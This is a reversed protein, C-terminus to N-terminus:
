NLQTQIPLAAGNINATGSFSAKIKEAGKLRSKVFDKLMTFIGAASPSLTLKLVTKANPKIKTMVYSEVSAVENKGILLAGVISNVTATANTPNMVGISVFVKKQKLNFDLKEFSFKASTALRKKGFAYWAGGLLALFGLTQGIKM